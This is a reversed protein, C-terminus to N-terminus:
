RAAPRAGAVGKCWGQSGAGGARSVADAGIAADQQPVREALVIGIKRPVNPDRPRERCTRSTLELCEDLDEVDRVGVVEFVRAHSRVQVEVAGDTGSQAVRALQLRAQPPEESSFQLNPSPQEEGILRGWGGSGGG